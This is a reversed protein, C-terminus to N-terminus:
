RVSVDDVRFATNLTADTAVRLTIRVRQGAYSALNFNGRLVYTGNATRDVNSLTLPTALVAGATNRIEVFLRDRATTGTDASVVGVQLSLVPRSNSPLQLEQYVQANANAGNGLVISGTGTKPTGGTATYAFGTGSSVWPSRSGEFGGNVLLQPATVCSGVGVLCWANQVALVHYSQAGYLDRAANSTATRAAAFNASSTMYTTLARYWIRGAADAGVGQVSGGRRHTGGKAALYFALNPIGSNIHVGGSDSTGVYRDLYHDPQDDATFGSNGARRPNDLYRLADGAINPTFSDEGIMWTGANEGEVYREILAGFVDSFSENLAGSENSYILGATFQTVGHMWEHAMIDLAVLPLFVSGDGDGIVVKQGDWYANNYNTGYHVLVTQLTAAGNGSTSANPGGQGNIGVRGHVNRLYDMTAASAFQADVAARQPAGNWVDDADSLRYGTSTGNRLDFVGIRRTTDEMYRTGGVDLTPITVTGRYLSPGTGSHLNDYSFPISGDHADVFVVRQEPGHPGGDIVLTVRWALHDVNDFRAVWLESAAVRAVCGACAESDVATARATAMTVTPTTNVNLGAVFDDTVQYVAGARTHIIGEGGWVPVGGHMQRWRTHGTARGDVWVASLRVSDPNVRARELFRRSIATASARDREDASRLGNAPVAFAGVNALLAGAALAAAAM